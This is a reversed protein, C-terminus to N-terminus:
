YIEILDIEPHVKDILQLTLPYNIMFSFAFPVKMAKESLLFLLTLLSTKEKFNKRDSLSTLPKRQKNM